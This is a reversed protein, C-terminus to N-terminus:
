PVPLADAEAREAIDPALFGKTVVEVKCGLLVELETEAGALDYLTTDPSPDVLVDLDSDETDESRAASGFIRPNSLGFRALVQRVQDAHESLALSPRMAFWYRLRALM